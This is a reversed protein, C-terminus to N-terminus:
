RAARLRPDIALADLVFRAGTEVVVGEPVDARDSTSGRLAVVRAGGLDGAAHLASAAHDLGADAAALVIVAPGEAAAACLWTTTGAPEAACEVLATAGDEVLAFGAGTQGGLAPLLVEITGTGGGGVPCLDPPALGAAELGRGIAAAVEPARLGDFAAPAVLVPRETMSEAM